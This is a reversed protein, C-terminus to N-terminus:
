DTEEITVVCTGNGTAVGAGGVASLFSLAGGQAVAVNAPTLTMAHGAYAAIAETSTTLAAVTASVTGTADRKVLTLTTYNTAGSAVASPQTLYASVVRGSCPVPVWGAEAATGDTSGAIAVEICRRYVHTASDTQTLGELQKKASAVTM